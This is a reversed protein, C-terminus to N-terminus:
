QSSSLRAYTARLQEISALGLGMPVEEKRLEYWAKIKGILDEKENKEKLEKAKSESGLGRNESERQRAEAAALQKRRAEEKSEAKQGGLVQGSGSTKVVRTNSGSAPRQSQTNSSRQANGGEPPFANNNLLGPHRSGREKEKGCCVGM